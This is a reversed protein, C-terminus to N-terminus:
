GRTPSEQVWLKRQEPHEHVNRGDPAWEPWATTAKHSMERPFARAAPLDRGQADFNHNIELAYVQSETELIDVALLDGDVAELMQMAVAGLPASFGERAIRSGTSIRLIRDASTPPTRWYPDVVSERGVVIRWCRAPWIGPDNVETVSNDQNRLHNALVPNWSNTENSEWCLLVSLSDSVTAEIGAGPDALGRECSLSTAGRHALRFAEAAV